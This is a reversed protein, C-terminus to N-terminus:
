VNIKKGCQSCTYHYFYVIGGCSPCTWRKKQYILYNELGMDKLKISEEPIEYRYKYKPDGKHTSLLKKNIKSCPFEECEVCLSQKKIIYCCKRIICGSRSKSRTQENIESSCGFCTKNFSPCAGCYVGCPALEGPKKSM